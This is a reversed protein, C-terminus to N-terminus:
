AQAAQRERIWEVAKGIDEWLAATEKNQHPELGLFDSCTGAEIVGAITILGSMVSKSMRKM